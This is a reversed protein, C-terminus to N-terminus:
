RRDVGDSLVVTEGGALGEMIEVRGDSGLLGTTVPVERIETGDKIRVFESSDRAIVARRPVSVVDQRLAAQVTVNVTLGIKFRGDHASPALTVEYTPVGEIIRSAPAIEIVTAPWSERAGLADLTFIAPAGVGFKAADAEPVDATLELQDVSALTLVTSGAATYEGSEVAGATVTGDIPARLVTKDLRAAALARAAELSALGAVRGSATLTAEYAARAEGAAARKLANAKEVAALTEDLDRQASKLASEKVRQSLLAAATAAVDGSERETKEVVARQQDLEIKAGRVAQRKRELLKMNEDESAEADLVASQWALEKQEQAAAVDARARALELSALRSDLTAVIQGATVEDGVDVMLEAVVGGTDFALDVSQKAAVSGTFSVEQRVEGREAQVTRVENGGAGRRVYAYGSAAAAAALVVGVVSKTVTRM